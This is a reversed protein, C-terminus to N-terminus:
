SSKKTRWRGGPWTLWRMTGDGSFTVYAASEIDITFVHAPGDARWGTEDFIHQWYPETRGEALPSARGYLKVDGQQGNKDSTTSHIACRPDRLLDLMKKSQWMGGLVLDGDFITYEIPTVRPWGNRRITGLMVLGTSAFRERALAALEPALQEFGQWSAM